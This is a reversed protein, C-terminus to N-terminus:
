QYPTTWEGITATWPIFIEYPGTPDYSLENVAYQAVKDGSGLSNVVVSIPQDSVLIASGDTGNAVSERFVFKVASPLVVVSDNAVWAGTSADYYSINVTANATGMNVIQYPTTWEGITATWPIFIEYPGTPAYSLENVPYQAVKDGSGLSNVVVSIPQDSVLIASGDTGNAVSERFVFKVASPLVVVSDNAVWAGTSADYYSINVTANVVGKNVIQFPTTWEGLTATWPVFITSAPTLIFDKTVTGSDVVVTSVNTVYGTASASINYTGYPVNNITYNGNVDTTDNYQPYEVLKVLAGEIPDGATVNAASASGTFAILCATALVSIVLLMPAIRKDSKLFYKSNNM